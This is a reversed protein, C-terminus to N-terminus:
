KRFQVTYARDLAPASKLLGADILVKSTTEWKEPTMSLVEAGANGRIFPIVADYIQDLDKPDFDKTYKQLASVADAKNELAHKWGARVARAFKAVQEPSKAIRDETTFFVNGYYSLGQSAATIVTVQEGKGRLTIPQNTVYGPLVDIAGSLFPTMDFQIPVERVDKSSMGNKVLLARYLVDTDTGTQIGVRKGKFGKFDKIGGKTRTIFGVPTEQFEAAIAVVPVGQARALLLNGAGGVGFENAGTAVLKFPDLGFGGPEITVDLGEKEFFGQEKAVFVGVEAMDAVWALRVKIAELKVPEPTASAAAQPPQASKKDSCGVLLVSSFIGLAAAGLWLRRTSKTQTM